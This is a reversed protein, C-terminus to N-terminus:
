PNAKRRAQGIGIQRLPEPRKSAVGRV